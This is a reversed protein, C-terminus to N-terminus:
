RHENEPSSSSITLHLPIAGGEAATDYNTQERGKATSPTWNKIENIPLLHVSVIM